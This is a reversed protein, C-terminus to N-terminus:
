SFVNERVRVEHITREAISFPVVWGLARRGVIFSTAATAPTLRLVTDRTTLPPGLTRGSRASFTCAATRSSPYRWLRAALARRRASPSVELM